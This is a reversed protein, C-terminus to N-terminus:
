QEERPVCSLDEHMPMLPACPMLLNGICKSGVKSEPRDAVNIAAKRGACGNGKLRVHIHDQRCVEFAYTATASTVQM